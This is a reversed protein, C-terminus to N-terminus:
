ESMTHTYSNNNLPTVCSGCRLPMMQMVMLWLTGLALCKQKVFWNKHPWFTDSLTSPCISSRPANGATAGVTWGDNRARTHYIVATRVNHGGPFATTPVVAALREQPEAARM